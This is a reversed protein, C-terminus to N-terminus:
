QFWKRAPMVSLSMVRFAFNSTTSVRAVACDCPRRIEDEGDAVLGFSEAHIHQKREDGLGGHRYNGTRSGSIPAGRSFWRCNGAPRGRRAAAERVRGFFVLYLRTRSAADRERCTGLLHEEPPIEGLDQNRAPGVFSLHCHGDIM